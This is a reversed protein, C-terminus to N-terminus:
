KEHRRSVSLLSLVLLLSWVELSEGALQKRLGPEAM